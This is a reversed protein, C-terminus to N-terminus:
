ITAAIKRKKEFISGTLNIFVGLMVLLGAFGEWIFFPEKLILIASAIGVIPVLLTFPVVNGVAYRGLLWNWIGYAIWTSFYVIYLVSVIGHWTLHHYCELWRAKGEFCLSFVGMPLCAAFSGWVVLALMNIGQVRKILLNGYGWSAAAAILLFFGTLTINRDFHLAVLGIGLFSIVAGLIQRSDPKEQLFIAAFFMSFFVQMQMILSAMAATMGQQIGIFLLSFQLGFMVLGYSVVLRVASWPLKIFFIAPVSSLVFRITCLLLPPIETLGSKVFVFNVGWILVVLFALFYHSVPM